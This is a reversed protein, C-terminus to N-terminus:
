LSDKRQLVSIRFNLKGETVMRGIENHISSSGVPISSLVSTSPLAEKPNRDELLKWFKYM